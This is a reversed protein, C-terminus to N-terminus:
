HSIAVHSDGLNFGLEMNHMTPVPFAAYPTQIGNSEAVTGHAFRISRSNDMIELQIDPEVPSDFCRANLKRMNLSALLSNAYIRTQLILVSTYALGQQQQLTLVLAVIDLLSTLTGTAVSYVVLRYLLRKTSSGKQVILHKRLYYAMIASSFMDGFIFLVNGALNLPLVHQRYDIWLEYKIIEISGWLGIGTRTIIVLTMLLAPWISRTVQSSLDILDVSVHLKCTWIKRAFYIYVVFDTLFGLIFMVMFEWNTSAIALNNGFAQVLMKDIVTVSLCMHTTELAWVIGVLAKLSWRDGSYARYYFVTQLCTIGYLGMAILSGILPGRTLEIAASEEGNNIPAM